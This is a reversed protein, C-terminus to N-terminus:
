VLKETIQTFHHDRQQRATISVDTFPQLIDVLSAREERNLHYIALKELQRQQTVTLNLTESVSNLLAKLESDIARRRNDVIFQQLRSLYDGIPEVHSSMLEEAFEKSLRKGECHDSVVKLLGIRSPPLFLSAADFLGSAEMDVLGNQNEPLTNATVPRDFTTVSNESLEHQLVQDPFWSKGSHHDTIKNILHLSGIEVEKTGGALGINLLAEVRHELRSLASAMAAAARVKGTGTIILGIHGNGMFRFPELESSHRLDLQRAIPKAEVHLATALLIMPLALICLQVTGKRVSEFRGILGYTVPFTVQGLRKCGLMATM